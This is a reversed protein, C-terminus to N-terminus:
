AALRRRILFRHILGGAVTTAGFFGVVDGAGTNPLVTAAGLVPTTPPTNTPNAPIAVACKASTVNQVDKSNVTVTARYGKTADAYTHKSTASTNSTAVTDSNSDGFDFIYNTITTNKASANATFTYTNAQSADASFTLGECILVPAKPTKPTTITVRCNASTVNSRDKSSVAVKATFKKGAQSYAHTTRATHNSTKVTQSKGDGFDFVYKTITTNAAAATATFRYTNDTSNVPGFTLNRCALQPQPPQKGCQPIKGHDYALVPTHNQVGYTLDVQYFCGKAPTSSTPLGVSMSYTGSKSFVKTNRQYLIQKNYPQGNMTPAYFSNASVQVKCNSPGNVKFKVTTSNGSPHFASGRAGVAEVTCRPASGVQGPTSAEVKSLGANIVLGLVVAVLIYRITRAVKQISRTM